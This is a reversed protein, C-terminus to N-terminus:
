FLLKRPPMEKIEPIQKSVDGFHYPRHLLYYLPNLSEHCHKSTDSDYFGDCIFRVFDSDIHNYIHHFTHSRGDDMKIALRFKELYDTIHLMDGVRNHQRWLHYYERWPLYIGKDSWIKWKDIPKKYNLDFRFIFYRDYEEEFLDLGKLMTVKQSRLMGHDDIFYKKPNFFRLIQETIPSPFTVLYTDVANYIIKLPQIIEKSISDFCIRADRHHGFRDPGFHHSRFLM